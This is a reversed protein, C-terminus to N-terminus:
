YQKWEGESVIDVADDVVKIATMDDIAYLPVNIEAAAKEMLAFTAGPFYDNGIHPRMVFDTLGLAKASGFGVPASEGYEDDHYAGSSKLVSPDFRLEHTAVMSGASIGVYVAKELLEPLRAALGSAHLWYCLYHTNGGGVVIADATQLTALWNDEGMSPMATLELIALQGWGLAATQQLAIWAYDAGGHSGYIATPIYVAKAQDIPKDLLEVLAANISDNTVGTSTLLLKV